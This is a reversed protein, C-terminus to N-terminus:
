YWSGLSMGKSGQLAPSPGKQLLMASNTSLGKRLRLHEDLKERPREETTRIMSAGFQSSLLTAPELFYIPANPAKAVQGGDLPIGGKTSTGKRVIMKCTLVYPSLPHVIETKRTSKKTDEVQFGDVLGQVLRFATEDGSSPQRFSEGGSLVPTLAYVKESGNGAVVNYSIVVHDGEQMGYKKPNPDGLVSRLFQAASAIGRKHLLAEKLPLPEFMSLSMGSVRGLVTPYGPIEGRRTAIELDFPRDILVRCRVLQKLRENFASRSLMGYQEPDVSNVAINQMLRYHDEATKSELGGISLAKGLLLDLAEKLQPNRAAGLVVANIQDTTLGVEIASNVFAALGEDLDAACISSLDFGSSDEIPPERHHRVQRAEPLVLSPRVEQVGGPRGFSAGRPLRLEAMAKPEPVAESRNMMSFGLGADAVASDRTEKAVPASFLGLDPAKPPEFVAPIEDEALLSPDNTLSDEDLQDDEYAGDSFGEHDLHIHLSESYDSGRGVDEDLIAAFPNDDDDEDGAWATEEPEIPQHPTKPLSARPRSRPEMAPEMAPEMVPEESSAMGPLPRRPGGSVLGAPKRKWPNFNKIDEM